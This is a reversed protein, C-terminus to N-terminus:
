YFDSCIPCINNEYREEMDNLKDECNICILHKCNGINETNICKGCIIGGCMDCVELCDYCVDGDCNDCINLCEKCLTVNCECYIKYLENKCEKCFCKCKISMRKCKKCIVYNFILLSLEIPFKRGILNDLYLILKMNSM